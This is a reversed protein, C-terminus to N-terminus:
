VEIEITQPAPLRSTATRPSQPSDAPPYALPYHERAWEADVRGTFVGSLGRRTTPNVIALFLHGFVLPTALLFAVGHVYWPLLAEGAYWMWAGSAAFTPILIMQALLNLKQGPNFKGAPPLPIELFGAIPALALWRLDRSSWELASRANAILEGRNGGLFVLFIGVPLAVGAARHTTVLTELAVVRVGYRREIFLLAGTVLLVLYPIAQVWHFVRETASFRM